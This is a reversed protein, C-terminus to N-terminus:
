KALSDKNDCYVDVSGSHINYLEVRLNIISQIALQGWIEARTSELDDAYCDTPVVGIIREKECRSELIYAHAARNRSGLSADSVAITKGMSVAEALQQLCVIEQIGRLNRKLTPHLQAVATLFEGIDENSLKAKM